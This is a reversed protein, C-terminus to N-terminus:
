TNFLIQKRNNSKVLSVHIWTLDKENILQDFVFSKIILDLLRKNQSKDGGTIDVAMGQLHHSTVAGGVAKNVAPCRYGSNVHIPMGYLARLPDLIMKTLSYLNDVQEWNPINVLGTDTACLEPLTFFPSNM